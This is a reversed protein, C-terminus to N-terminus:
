LIEPTETKSLGSPDDDYQRLFMEELTPPQSILSRVGVNVLERFLPDLADSDVQCRLQNDQTWLDHVGAMAALRPVPGTLEATISTRTLHRLETLTGTEVRRGRRIISVRDCLAEVEALIHSSLLVTRGKRREEQITEQFVAEMLPDLGSTPEDLILLDADSSLAAVQDFGPLGLRAGLHDQSERVLETYRQTVTVPEQEGGAECRSVRLAWKVVVGQRRGAVRNAPHEVCM